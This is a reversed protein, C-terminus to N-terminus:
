LKNVNITISLKGDSIKSVYGHIEAVKVDHKYVFIEQDKLVVGVRDDNITQLEDCCFAQRDFLYHELIVSAPVGNLQMFKRMFEEM